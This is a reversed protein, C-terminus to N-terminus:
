DLWLAERLGSAREVRRALAARFVAENLWVEVSESARTVGTYILERTLVRSEREPLVLLVRAFESGQSKHVTLAFATEHRPLRAPAIGRPTGEGCHFFVRLEGTAADPLVVGLDGNYLRQSHDNETVRVPRGIFWESDTSILGDQRLIEEVLGNLHSVGSPGHRLAALIRFRGFAMLAAMPERMSVAPGFGDLVSPRLTDLLNAPSPLTKARVATAGNLVALARGADGDNVARSLELIGSGPAFRHNWELQVICDALASASPTPPSILEAATAERFTSKFEASFENVHGGCIDGLVAGAEVSALQDKDGLLIVRASEPLADFTKSMLALDVMSAEDVVLVDLALPNEAHHRFSGAGLSAGLLRHLTAAESPLRARVRDDCPLAAKLRQVSEQLRAAAKGTPAALAIRLPSDGAQELLLALLAVVTHTKGTGPGGTIVCLRRRLAAFAAVQQWNVLGAHAPFLRQLGERLKAGDLAQVPTSARERLARALKTESQWYRHLYLRGGPDLILPKYEGPAGVVPSARLAEIWPERASPVDLGSPWAAGTDQRLDLCVHGEGCSRSALAAALTVDPRGGGCLREMLRAFHRAIPPFVAPDLPISEGSVSM